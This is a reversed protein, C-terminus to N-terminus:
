GHQDARQAVACAARHRQEKLIAENHLLDAVDFALAAAFVDYGVSSLHLFDPMLEADITGDSRLFCPGVDLLRVRPDFRRTWLLQNVSRVRQRAADTPAEGRPLLLLLLVRAEEYATVVHNIVAAVGDATESASDVSQGINNTGILVVIVAPEGWVASHRLRWLLHQTLDGSLGWNLTRTDGFVGRWADLGLNQWGATISDGLLLVDPRSVLGTAAQEFYATLWAPHLRPVPVTASAPAEHHNNAPQWHFFLSIGLIVTLTLASIVLVVIRAGVTRM